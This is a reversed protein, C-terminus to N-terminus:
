AQMGEEGVGNPQGGQQQGQQQQQRAADSSGAAVPPGDRPLAERMAAIEAELGRCAADIEMNQPPSPPRPAHLMLMLQRDGRSWEGVDWTTCCLHPMSPPTSLPCADSGAACLGSEERMQGPSSPVGALLGYLGPM